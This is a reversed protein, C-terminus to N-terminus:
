RLDSAEIWGIGGQNGVKLLDYGMYSGRELINVSVDAGLQYCGQFGIQSGAQVLRANGAAAPAGNCVWGGARVSPARKSEGCGAFLLSVLVLGAAYCKDLTQRQQM